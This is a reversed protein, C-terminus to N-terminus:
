AHFDVAPWKHGTLTNVLIAHVTVRGLRCYDFALALYETSPRCGDVTTRRNSAPTHLLISPARHEGSVIYM